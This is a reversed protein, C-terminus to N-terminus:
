WEWDQVKQYRRLLDEKHKAVVVGFAFLLAGGVLGLAAAIARSEMGWRTLNVVIDMLLFGFGLTLYARQQWALGIMVAAISLIALLLGALPSSFAFNDAAGDGLILLAALSRLWPKLDGLDRAYVQAMFGLSLGMPMLYASSLDVRYHAFMPILGANIAILALWAFRQAQKQKALWAYFGAVVALSSSDSWHGNWELSFPVLLPLLAAFHGSAKEGIALRTNRLRQSIAVLLLAGGAMAIGDFGQMFDLFNGRIRLLAYIGTLSIESIYVLSSRQQKVAFAFAVLALIALDVVGILLDIDKPNQVLVASLGALTAGIILFIWEFRHSTKKTAASIQEGFRSLLAAILLTTLSLASLVREEHGASSFFSAAFLTWWLAGIWLQLYAFSTLLPSDERGSRWLVFAAALITMAAGTWLMRVDVIGLIVLPAFFAGLLSASKRWAASSGRTLAAMSLLALSSALIYIFAFTSGFKADNLVAFAAISGSFSLLITAIFVEIRLFRPGRRTFVWATALFVFIAIYLALDRDDGLPSENHGNYYIALLWSMLAMPPAFPRLWALKKTAPQWLQLLAIAAPILVLLPRSFDGTEALALLSLPASFSAVIRGSRSPIAFMGLSALSAAMWAMAENHHLGLSFATLLWLLQAPVLRWLSDRRLGWFTWTLAFLGLMVASPIAQRDMTAVTAVAALLLIGAASLEAFRHRLDGRQRWSDAMWLAIWLNPLAALAGWSASVREGPATVLHRLWDLQEPNLTSGIAPAWVTSVFVWLGAAALTSLFEFKEPQLHHGRDDRLSDAAMSLSLMAIAAVVVLSPLSEVALFMALANAFLLALGWQRQEASRLSLLLFASIALSPACHSLPIDLLRTSLAAIWPLAALSFLLLAQPTTKSSRRFNLVTKLALIMAVAFLLASLQGLQLAKVFGALSLSLAALALLVPSRTALEYGATLHRSIWWVFATVALSALLGSGISASYSSAAIAAAFLGVVFALHLLVNAANDLKLRIRLLRAALAMLSGYFLVIVVLFLRQMDGPVQGWSLAALYLTGGLILTAALGFLVNEFNLFAGLGPRAKSRIARIEDPVHLPINDIALGEVLGSDGIDLGENEDEPQALSTATAKEDLQPWDQQAQSQKEDPIPAVAGLAYIARELEPPIEVDDLERLVERATEFRQLKSQQRHLEKHLQQVQAAPRLADDSKTTKNRRFIMKLTLVFGILAFGLIAFVAILAFPVFSDM